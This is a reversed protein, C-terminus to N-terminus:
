WFRGRVTNRGGEEHTTMTPIDTVGMFPESKAFTGFLPPVYESRVIGVGEPYAQTYSCDVSDCSVIKEPPLEISPDYSRGAGSAEANRKRSINIISEANKQMWIRTALQSGTPINKSCRPRYDTVLRGDNMQAAREPYRNDPTPATNKAPIELSKVRTEILYESPQTFFWASQPERFGNIDM